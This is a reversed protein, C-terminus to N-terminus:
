MVPRHSYFLIIACQSLFFMWYRESSGQGGWPCYICVIFWVPLLVQRGSLLGNLLCPIFCDLIGVASVQILIARSMFFKCGYKRM